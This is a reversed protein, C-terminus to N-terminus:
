PKGLREDPKAEAFNNSLISSLPRSLNDTIGM